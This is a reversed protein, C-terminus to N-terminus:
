PTVRDAARRADLRDVKMGQLLCTVWLALFILGVILMMPVVFASLLTLAQILWGLTLGWPRRMMGAALLCLVALGCGILLYRNGGTFDQASVALGRAVQAGLFIVLSQGGLVAALMRWTFKGKAGYFLGQM